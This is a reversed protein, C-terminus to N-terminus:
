FRVDFDSLGADVAVTATEVDEVCSGPPGQRLRDCFTGLVGRDAQALVEVRGDPLNRVWGVVGHKM